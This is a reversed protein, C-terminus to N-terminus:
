RKSPKLSLKNELKELITLYHESSSVSTGPKDSSLESPTRLQSLSLSGESFPTKPERLSSFKAAPSAGRQSPSSSKVPSIATLTFPSESPSKRGKESQKTPLKANENFVDKFRTFYKQKEKGSIEKDTRVLKIYIQELVQIRIGASKMKNKINKINKINKLEESDSDQFRFKKKFNNLINSAFESLRENLQSGSQDSSSANFHGSTANSAPTSASVVSASRSVNSSPAEPRSYTIRNNDSKYISM